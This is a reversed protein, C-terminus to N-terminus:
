YMHLYKLMVESKSGVTECIQLNKDFITKRWFVKPKDQMSRLSEYTLNLFGRVGIEEYLGQLGRYVNAIYVGVHSELM